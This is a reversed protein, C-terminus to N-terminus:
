AVGVEDLRIIELGGIGWRTKKATFFTILEPKFESKVTGELLRWVFEVALTTKGIGGDGYLMCARSGFDNTWETLEEIERERGTFDATLRDPILAM